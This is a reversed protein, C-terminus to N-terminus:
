NFEFIAWPSAIIKLTSTLLPLVIVVWIIVFYKPESVTIKLSGLILIEGHVAEAFPQIVVEVVDYEGSPSYVFKADELILVM